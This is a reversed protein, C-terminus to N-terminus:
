GGILGHVRFTWKLGLDCSEDIVLTLFIDAKSITDLAM